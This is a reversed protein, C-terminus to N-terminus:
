FLSDGPEVHRGNKGPRSWLIHGRWVWELPMVADSGLYSTGDSDLALYLRHPLFRCRFAIWLVRFPRSCGARRLAEAAQFIQMRKIARLM